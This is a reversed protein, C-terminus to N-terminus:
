KKWKENRDYMWRERSDGANGDLKLMREVLLLMLCILSSFPVTVVFYTLKDGM